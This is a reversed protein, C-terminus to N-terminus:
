MALRSKEKRASETRATRCCSPMGKTSSCARSTITTGTTRSAAPVTSLPAAERAHVCAYVAEIRVGAGTLRDVLHANVREVEAVTLAGEGVANQNTVIFLSFRAQLLLLAPVTEPYLVLDGPDALNGVDEILTGDRDLFVAPKPNVV